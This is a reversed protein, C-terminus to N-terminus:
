GLVRDLRVAWAQAADIVWEKDRQWNVVPGPTCTAEECDGEEYSEPGGAIFARAVAAGHIFLVSWTYGIFGREEPYDPPTYQSVGVAGDIGPVDFRQGGPAALGDGVLDALAAAAASEDRFLTVETGGVPYEPPGHEPEVEETPHLLSVYMGLAPGSADVAAGGGGGLDPYPAGPDGLSDWEAETLPTSMVHVVDFPRGTPTVSDMRDGLAVALAGPDVSSTWDSPGSVFVEGVLPGRRVLAIHVRGWHPESSVLVADPGAAPLPEVVPGAGAQWPASPQWAMFAKAGAETQFLHVTTSILPDWYDDRGFGDYFYRYGIVRGLRQVAVCAANRADHDEGTLELAWFSYLENDIFGGRNAKNLRARGGELGKEAWPDITMAQLEHLAIGLPVLQGGQQTATCPLDADVGAPTFSSPVPSPHTSTPTSGPEVVPGCGAALVAALGLSTVFGRCGIGTM